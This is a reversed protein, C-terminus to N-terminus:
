EPMFLMRFADTKIDGSEILVGDCDFVIARLAPLRQRKRSTLNLPSRM